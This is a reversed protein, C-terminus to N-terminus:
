VMGPCFHVMMACVANRSRAGEERAACELGAAAVASRKSTSSEQRPIQASRTASKWKGAVPKMDCLAKM